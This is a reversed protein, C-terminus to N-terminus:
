AARDNSVALGIGMHPGTDLYQDVFEYCRYDASAQMEKWVKAVGPCGVNAIDHLAIISARERLVTLERRCQDETHHSDIFVLDIPPLRALLSVFAPSQTNVCAFEARDNVLAYDRMAPCPIVDIAIAFDLRRFRDLTEVTAVFSGGHRIGIEMYSRVGLSAIRALYGGFQNPYQWIRLGEGCHPRLEHPFEDLGEDNLGLRAVLKELYGADRLDAIPSERILRIRALDIPSPHLGRLMRWGRSQANFTSESADM